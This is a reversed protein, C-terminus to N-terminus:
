VSISLITEIAKGASLGSLYAGEVRGRGGFADGAFILPLEDVKLIDLPYTTLPISYRWKKLEESQIVADGILYHELENRLFGLVDADSDDFHNESYQKDLQMTICTARDSIGKAQNDAIWYVSTSFDQIAGSSPLRLDGNVVFLGCLCPEYYIRNLEKLTTSSISVDSLLALSQPVPPTLILSSSTYVKDHSDVIIWQNNIWQIMRVETSLHIDDIKDSLHKALQYMGGRIAYCPHNDSKTRKISGDSWEYSWVYALESQLWTDVEQQFAATRSTFFQTGYDALGDQLPHSTLRGGVVPAQELVTVKYNLDQLTKAASLGTIGAGVIITDTSKNM